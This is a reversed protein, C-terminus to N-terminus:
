VPEAQYMRIPQKLSAQLLIFKAVPEGPMVVQETSAANYLSVVPTVFHRDPILRREGNILLKKTPNPIESLWVQMGLDLHLTVGTPINGVEGPAITVKEAAKLIHLGSISPVIDSDNNKVTYTFFSSSM